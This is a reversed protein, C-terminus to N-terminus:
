VTAVEKEKKAVITDIDKVAKDTQKQVADSGDKAEDEGVEKAKQLSKISDVCDRRVNRVAVKGDEGIAKCQKMMDKRRDETLAPINIRICSGDNMPTIGLDSEMLAKEVDGMCSKDFPDVTLQQSSPVSISAMQSLPTMAGYYEVQVRDLMSASARGTRITNLNQKVSEVSKGMREEADMEIVELEENMFLPSSAARASASLMPAPVFANTVSLTLSLIAFVRM